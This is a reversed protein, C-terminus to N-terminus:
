DSAIAIAVGITKKAYYRDKQPLQGKLQLQHDLLALLFINSCSIFTNKAHVHFYVRDCTNGVCQGFYCSAMNYWQVYAYSDLVDM